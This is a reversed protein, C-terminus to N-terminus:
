PASCAPRSAAATTGASASRGGAHGLRSRSYWAGRVVRGVDSDIVRQDLVQGQDAGWCWAGRQGGWRLLQGDPLLLAEQRQGGAVDALTECGEARLHQLLQADQRSWASGGSAQHFKKLFGSNDLLFLRAGERLQREAVARHGPVGGAAPTGASAGPTAASTAASTAAQGAVPNGVCGWEVLPHTVAIHLQQVLFHSDWAPQQQQQQQPFAITLRAKKGPLAVVQFDEPLVLM